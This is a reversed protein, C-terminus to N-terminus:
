WREPPVAGSGAGSGSFAELADYAPTLGTWRFSGFARVYVLECAHVPRERTHTLLIPKRM